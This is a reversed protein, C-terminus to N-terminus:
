KLVNFDDYLTVSRTVRDHIEIDIHTFVECNWIPLDNLIPSQITIIELWDTKQLLVNKSVSNWDSQWVWWCIIKFTFDWITDIRSNRYAYVMQFIDGKTYDALDLKKFDIFNTIPAYEYYVQEVLYILSTIVGWLFLWIFINLTMRTVAVKM